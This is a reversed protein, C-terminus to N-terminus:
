GACTMCCHDYQAIRRDSPTLLDACFCSRARRSPHSLRSTTFSSPSIYTLAESHVVNILAECTRPDDFPKFMTSSSVAAAEM